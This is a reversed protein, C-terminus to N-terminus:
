IPCAADSGATGVNCVECYFICGYIKYLCSGGAADASASFRRFHGSQKTPCTYLFAGGDQRTGLYALGEFFMSFARVGFVLEAVSFCFAFLLIITQEGVNVATIWFMLLLAPLKALSIWFMRIFASRADELEPCLDCLKGISVLILFYGVADPLVDIININPNFLFFLGAGLM